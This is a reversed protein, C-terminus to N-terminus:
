LIFKGKPLSMVKQRVEVVFLELWHISNVAAISNSTQENWQSDISSCGSWTNLIAKLTMNRTNELSHKIEALFM